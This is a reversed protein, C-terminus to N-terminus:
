DAQRLLNSLKPDAQAARKLLLGIHGVRQILQAGTRECLSELLADRTARDGAAIRVKILEHDRLARTAEELVADSLGKDGVTLVPRLRHGIARLQRLQPRTPPSSLPTM